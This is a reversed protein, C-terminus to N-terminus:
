WHSAELLGWFHAQQARQHSAPDARTLRHFCEYDNAYHLNVLWKNLMIHLDSIMPESDMCSRVHGQETGLNCVVSKATLPEPRMSKPSVWVSHPDNPM